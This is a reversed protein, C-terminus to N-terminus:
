IDAEKRSLFEEVVDNCSVARSIHGAMEEMGQRRLIDRVGFKSREKLKVVPLIILVM